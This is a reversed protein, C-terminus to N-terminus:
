QNIYIEFGLTGELRVYEGTGVTINLPHIIFGSNGGVPRYGIGTGSKVGFHQFSHRTSEHFDRNKKNIWISKLGWLLKWGQM